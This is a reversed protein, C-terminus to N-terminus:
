RIRSQNVQKETVHPIIIKRHHQLVKQAIENGRINCNFNHKQKTYLVEKKCYLSHIISLMQDSISGSSGSM